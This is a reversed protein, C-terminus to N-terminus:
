QTLTATTTDSGDDTRASAADGPGVQSGVVLVRGMHSSSIWHLEQGAGMRAKELALDPRQGSVQM